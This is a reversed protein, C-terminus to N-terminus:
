AAVDQSRNTKIIEIGIHEEEIEIQRSGQWRQHCLYGRCTGSGVDHCHDWEKHEWSGRREHVTVRVGAQVV